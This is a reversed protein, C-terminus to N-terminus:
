NVVALRTIQHLRPSNFRSFENLVRLKGIESEVSEVLGLSEMWMPVIPVAFNPRVTGSRESDRLHRGVM